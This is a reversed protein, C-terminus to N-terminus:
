TSMAASHMCLELFADKQAVRPIDHPPYNESVPTRLVRIGSSSCGWVGVGTSIPRAQNLGYASGPWCGEELWQFDSRVETSRIEAELM